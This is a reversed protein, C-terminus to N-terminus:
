ILDDRFFKIQIVNELKVNHADRLEVQYKISNTTLLQSLPVTGRAILRSCLIVFIFEFKILLKRLQSINSTQALM